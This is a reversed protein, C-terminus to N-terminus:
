LQYESSDPKSNWMGTALQVYNAAGGADAAEAQPCSRPLGNSADRSRASDSRPEISSGRKGSGQREGSRRLGRLRKRTQFDRQTGASCLLQRVEFRGASSQPLSNPSLAAAVAM